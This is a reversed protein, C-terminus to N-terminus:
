LKGDCRCGNHAFLFPSICVKRAGQPLDGMAKRTRGALCFGLCKFEKHRLKPKSTVKPLTCGTIYFLSPFVFRELVRYVAWLRDRGALCSGLLCKFGRELEKPKSESQSTHLRNHAFSLPFVFRELVEPLRGYGPRGALCSGLVNLGRTETAKVDSKPFPAFRHAFLFPFVFRELVEPLSGM